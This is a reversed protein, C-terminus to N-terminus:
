QLVMDHTGLTVWPGQDIFPYPCGGDLFPSVSSELGEWTSCETVDAKQLFLVEGVYFHM